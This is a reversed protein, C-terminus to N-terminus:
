PPGTCCQRCSPPSHAHSHAPAAAACRLSAAAPQRLRAFARRAGAPLARSRKQFFRGWYFMCVVILSRCGKSSDRSGRCVVNPGAAEAYKGKQM